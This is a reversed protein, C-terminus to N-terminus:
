SSAERVEELGVVPLHSYCLPPLVSLAVTVHPPPISYIHTSPNFVHHAQRHTWRQDELRDKYLLVELPCLHLGVIEVPGLCARGLDLGTGSDINDGEFPEVYIGKIPRSVLPRISTLM